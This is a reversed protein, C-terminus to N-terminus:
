LALFDELSDVPSANDVVSVNGRSSPTLGYERMLKHISGLTTSMQPLCPHAKTVEQGQSGMVTIITGEERIKKRMEIYISLQDAMLALGLGDVETAVGMNHVYQSVQNFLASALPDEEIWGPKDPMRAALVPELQNMRSPQGTGHLEHLATPKRPRGAM